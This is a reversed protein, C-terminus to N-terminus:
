APRRSHAPGASSTDIVARETLRRVLGRDPGRLYALVRLALLDQVDRPDLDPGAYHGHERAWATLDSATM